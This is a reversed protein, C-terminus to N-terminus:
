RSSLVQNSSAVYRLEDIMIVEVLERDLFIPSRIGVHRFCTPSDLYTNKGSCQRLCIRVDVLSM